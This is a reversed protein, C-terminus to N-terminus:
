ENETHINPRSSFDYITYGQNAVQRPAFWIRCSNPLLVLDNKASDTKIRELYGLNGPKNFFNSEGVQKHLLLHM